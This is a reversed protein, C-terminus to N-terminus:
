REVNLMKLLDGGHAADDSIDAVLVDQRDQDVPQPPELIAPIVRRAHRDHAVALDLQAPAGPLQRAELFHDGAIRELPFVPDPMRSPRRVAPRGLLVGMGMAVAGAADHDNRRASSYM